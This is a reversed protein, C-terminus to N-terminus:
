KLEEPWYVIAKKLKESQEDLNTITSHLIEVDSEEFYTYKCIPRIWASVEKFTM